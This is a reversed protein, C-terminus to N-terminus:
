GALWVDGPPNGLLLLHHLDPLVLDVSEGFLHEFAVRRRDRREIAPGSIEQQLRNGLLVVKGLRREENRGRVTESM